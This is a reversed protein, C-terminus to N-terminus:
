IKVLQNKTVITGETNSVSLEVHYSVDKIFITSDIKQTSTEGNGFDWNRTTSHLSNDYFYMTCTDNACSKVEGYFSVM